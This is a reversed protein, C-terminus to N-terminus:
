KDRGAIKVSADGGRKKSGADFEDGYIRRCRIIKFHDIVRVASEIIHVDRKIRDGVRALRGVRDLVGGIPQERSDARGRVPALTYGAFIKDIDGEKSLMIVLKM